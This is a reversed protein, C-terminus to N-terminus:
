LGEFKWVAWWAAINPIPSWVRSMPYHFGAVELERFGFVVSGESSSEDEFGFSNSGDRTLKFDVGMIDRPYSTFAMRDGGWLVVHGGNEIKWVSFWNSLVLLYVLWVMLAAVLM